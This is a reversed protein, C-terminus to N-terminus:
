VIPLPRGACGSCDMRWSRRSTLRTEAFLDTLGATAPWKWSCYGEIARCHEASPGPAVTPPRLFSRVGQNSSQGRSADDEEDLFTDSSAMHPYHGVRYM